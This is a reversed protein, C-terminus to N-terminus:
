NQTKARIRKDRRRQNKCSRCRRTNRNDKFTNEPTYEHGHPCHTKLKEVGGIGIGPHTVPKRIKYRGSPYLVVAAMAEYRDYDLDLLADYSAVLMGGLRGSKKGSLYRQCAHTCQWYAHMRDNGKTPDNKMAAEVLGLMSEGLLDDYHHSASGRSFKAAVKRALDYNDKVFKDQAPTVVCM